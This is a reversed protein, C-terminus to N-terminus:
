ISERSFISRITTPTTSETDPDHLRLRIPIKLHTAMVLNLGREARNEMFLRHLAGLPGDDQPLQGPWHTLDLAKFLLVLKRQLSLEALDDLDPESQPGVFLRLTVSAGAPLRLHTASLLVGLAALDRRPRVWVGLETPGPNRVALTATVLSRGDWELELEEPCVDLDYDPMAM